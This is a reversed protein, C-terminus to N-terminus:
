AQDDINILLLPQLMTMKQKHKFAPYTDINRTTIPLDNWGVSGFYGISRKFAECRPMVVNFLPADHARTRIERNNLLVKNKKRVFMFNNVHAERRDKM